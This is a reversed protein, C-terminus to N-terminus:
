ILPEWEDPDINGADVMADYCAECLYIPADPKPRVEGIRVYAAEEKCGDWYPDECVADWTTESKKM